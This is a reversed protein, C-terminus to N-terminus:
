LFSRQCDYRMVRDTGDLRKFETKRVILVLIAPCNTNKSSKRKNASTTRPCTMHQCRRELQKSFNFYHKNFIHDLFCLYIKNKALPTSHCLSYFCQVWTEIQDTHTWTGSVVSTDKLLLVGTWQQKKRQVPRLATPGTHQTIWVLFFGAASKM